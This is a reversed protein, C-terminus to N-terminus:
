IRGADPEQHYLLIALIGRQLHELPRDIALTEALDVHDRDIDEPRPGLGVVVTGLPPSCPLEVTAREHVLCAVVDVQEVPQDPGDFTDLGISRGERAIYFDLVRSRHRYAPTRTRQTRETHGHERIWFVELARDRYDPLLTGGSDPAYGHIL